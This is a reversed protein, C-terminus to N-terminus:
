LLLVALLIVGTLGLSLAVFYSLTLAAGKLTTRVWGQGYVRRLAVLVYGPVSVLLLLVLSGVVVRTWGTLSDVEGTVAQLVALAAFVIFAFAHTHLAFVLHEGYYRRRRVYLLKLLLAFLPLLIFMAKPMNSAVAEAFWQRAGAEGMEDLAGGKSELKEGLRHWFGEAEATGSEASDPASVTPAAAAGQRLSDRRLVLAARASDLAALEREVETVTPTANLSDTATVANDSVQLIGGLSGPLLSILFFLLVSASLYLRIPRVYRNRQGGLYATTLFGPRSLLPVLTRWLKGDFGLYDTMVERGLHQLPRQFSVSAQGCASCYAGVAGHGCNDCTERGDPSTLVPPPQLDPPPM